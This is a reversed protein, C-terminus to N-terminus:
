EIHRNGKLTSTRRRGKLDRVMRPSRNSSGGSSNGLIRTQLYDLLVKGSIETLRNRVKPVLFHANKLLRLTPHYFVGDDGRDLIVGVQVVREPYYKRVLQAFYDAKMFDNYDTLSVRGQAFPENILIVSYRGIDEVLFLQELTDFSLNHQVRIGMKGLPIELDRVQEELAPGIMLLSQSFHM